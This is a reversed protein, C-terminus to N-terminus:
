TKSRASTYQQRSICHQCLLVDDVAHQLQVISLRMTRRVGCRENQPVDLDDWEAPTPRPPQIYYSKCAHVSDFTSHISDYTLSNSYCMSTYCWNMFLWLHGAGSLSNVGFFWQFAMLYKIELAWSVRGEKSKFIFSPTATWDGGAVYPLICMIVEEHSNM